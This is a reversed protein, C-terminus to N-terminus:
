MVRMLEPSAAVVALVDATTFFPKHSLQRYIHRALALDEETDVTLRVGLYPKLEKPGRLNKGVVKDQPQERMWETVHERQHEPAKAECEYLLEATFAECDLGLPFTREINNCCFDAEGEEVFRLVANVVGIDLFPEDGTARLVIDAKYERAAGAYRALVDHEPGRYMPWGRDSIYQALEDNEPTDPIAVVVLDVYAHSLREIVHRLMPVGEIRKLVKGPLRTSGLRAQVIAVTRM